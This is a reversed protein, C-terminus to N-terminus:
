NELLVEGRPGHGQAQHVLSVSPELPRGRGHSHSSDEHRRGGGEGEEEEEEEERRKSTIGIIVAPILTKEKEDEGM